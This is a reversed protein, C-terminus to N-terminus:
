RLAKRVIVDDLQHYGGPRYSEVEFLQSLLGVTRDQGVVAADKYHGEHAVFAAGAAAFRERDAKSFAQPDAMHSEGNITLYARAGPKLVRHIERFWLEHRDPHIHTLVSFSFLGAFHGDPYPLPPLDACKSVSTMGHRKILWSIAKADVDCGRYCARWAEHAFLWYLTRGSGCGWDLVPGEPSEGFVEIVRRSSDRGQNWFNAASERAGVHLRLEVPPLFVYGRQETLLEGVLRELQAIQKAQDGVDRRVEAAQASKSGRRAKQIFDPVNV